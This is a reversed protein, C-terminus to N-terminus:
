QWNHCLGQNILPTPKQTVGHAAASGFISDFLRKISDNLSKQASVSSGSASL